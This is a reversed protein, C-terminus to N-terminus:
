RALFVSPQKAHEDLKFEKWKKIQRIASLSADGIVVQNRGSKPSFSCGAPPEVRVEATVFIRLLAWESL